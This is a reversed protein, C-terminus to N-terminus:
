KRVRSQKEINTKFFNLGEKLDAGDRHSGTLRRIEKTSIDGYDLGYIAASSIDEENWSMQLFLDSGLFNLDLPSRKAPM